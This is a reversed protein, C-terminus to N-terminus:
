IQAGIEYQVPTLCKEAVIHVESEKHIDGVHKKLAIRFDVSREGITECSGIYVTANYAQEVLVNGRQTRLSRIILSRRHFRITVM